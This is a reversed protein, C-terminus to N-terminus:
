SSMGGERGLMGACQVAGSEESLMELGGDHHIFSGGCTEVLRRYQDVLGARGGICLVRRGALHAHTLYNATCGPVNEIATSGMVQPSTGCGPAERSQALENELEAIHNAQEANRQELTALRQGLAENRERLTRNMAETKSAMTLAMEDRKFQAAQRESEGLCSELEIVCRKYEQQVVVLKQRLQAAEDRLKANHRELKLLRKQEVYGLVGHQHALMHLEGYIVTGDYDDMDPHTWAAWLSGAVDGEALAKRWRDLVAAGGKAKAFQRVSLAYREDLFRQLAESVESRGRCHSVLLSHLTYDLMGSQDFGARKAVRQMDAVSLCTGLLQCHWGEPLEWLKRRHRPAVEVPPPQLLPFDSAAEFLSAIPNM